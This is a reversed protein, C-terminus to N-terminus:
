AAECARWFSNSGASHRNRGECLTVASQVKPGKPVHGAPDTGGPLLKRAQLDEYPVPVSFHVCLDDCPWLCSYSLLLYLSASSTHGHRLGGSIRTYPKTAALARNWLNARHQINFDPFVSRILFSRLPLNNLSKRTDCGVSLEATKLTAVLGVAHTWEPGGTSM